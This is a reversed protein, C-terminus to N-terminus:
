GEVEPFPNSATGTLSIGLEALEDLEAPDIGDQPIAVAGLPLSGTYGMPAVVPTGDAMHGVVDLKHRDNFEAVQLDAQIAARLKKIIYKSRTAYDGQLAVAKDLSPLLDDPITVNFRIKNTM